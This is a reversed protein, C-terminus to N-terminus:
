WWSWLNVKLTLALRRLVVDVIRLRDGYVKAAGSMGPKLLLSDNDIETIVLISRPSRAAASASETPAPGTDASTAIATVVGHFTRNPYARAKLAVPEGVRVAAIEREPVTVEVTLRKLDYVKALLSGQQVNQGALEALERAPTAVIGSVPSRVEVQRLQTELYARQAELGALEARAQEVEEPRSGHLLAALRRSAEAEDHEATAAQEQSNELDIRTLVGSDALQQNRSLRARAYQLRTRAQAVATRALAISDATPGAELMQLRARTERIQANVKALDTRQARNSLRAVLDGARVENGETVYVQEVLGDTETRVDANRVPLISFPGAVRLRAHGFVGVAGAGAALLLGTLVRKRRRRREPKPPPSSGDSSTPPPSSQEDAPDDDDDGDWDDDGSGTGFLKRARRRVKASLLGVFGALAFPQGSAMLFGLTKVSAVALLGLSPVAALLGYALYLRRERPTVEVMPSTVGGWLRRMLGGVYRFSRRRLNPADLYDSLLYYGDLKLLPSFNLLTKVGSGTMVILAVYNAWIDVDTLRWTFVALAWLTLEFFPGAFGVWLRKSKEPFLWADSVNCYFAPQFYILMFGLEHVEGGFHKCTIGHAFEHASAAIFTIALFPPIAALRYLRSLDQTIDSWNAVATGVAAAVLAACVVCCYPTYCFRLARALRDFLRNPDAVKFRLYLLSGRVRRDRRASGTAAANELLGAKALRHLFAGLSEPALAGGFRAETRQRITELPTEGDCQQTIFCEVDGFRFFDGTRADKVIAVPGDATHLERVILDQRLRPAGAGTGAGPSV